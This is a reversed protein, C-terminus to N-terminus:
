RLVRRVIWCLDIPAYFIGDALRELKQEAIGRGAVTTVSVFLLQAPFERRLQRMLEIASVVEGVSVAHLWIGGPVTRNWVPPPGGFREGLGHWYRRDRLGRLLIYLVILPFAFVGLLRYLFYIFVRPNTKNSRM